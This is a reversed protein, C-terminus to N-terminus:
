FGVGEANIWTRNLIDCSSLDGIFQLKDFGDIVVHIEVINDPDHEDLLERLQAVTM